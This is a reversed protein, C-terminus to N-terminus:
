TDHELQREFLPPEARPPQHSDVNIAQTEHGPMSSPPSGGQWGAVDVGDEGEIKAEFPDSECCTVREGARGSGKRGYGDQLATGVPAGDLAGHSRHM